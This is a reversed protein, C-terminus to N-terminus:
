LTYNSVKTLIEVIREALTKDCQAAHVKLKKHVEAPIKIRIQKYTKAMFAITDSM